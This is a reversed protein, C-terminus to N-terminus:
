SVSVLGPRLKIVDQVASFTVIVVYICIYTNTQNKTTEMKINVSLM